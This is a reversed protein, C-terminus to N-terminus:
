IRGPRFKLLPIKKLASLIAKTDDESTVTNKSSIWNVFYKSLQDTNNQIFTLYKHDAIVFDQLNIRCAMALKDIDIHDVKDLDFSDVTQNRRFAISTTDRVFFVSCYPRYYDYHAYVLYGGKAAGIAEIRDRLNEASTQSFTIFAEEDQNSYFKTFYEHFVTPSDADFVGSRNNRRKYKNDLDNILKIVENNTADLLSKSKRIKAGEAGQPKYIEHIIVKLIEM